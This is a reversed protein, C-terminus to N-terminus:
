KDQSELIKRHLRNAYSKAREDGDYIELADLALTLAKELDGSKYQERCFYLSVDKLSVCGFEFM